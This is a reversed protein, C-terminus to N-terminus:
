IGYTNSQAPAANNSPKQPEPARLGQWGMEITHDIIAIAQAETQNALRKLQAEESTPKLPKKIETRHSRWRNWATAFEEGHPLNATPSEKKNSKEERRKEPQAKQQPKTAVNDCRNARSKAMRKASSGRLKATQGNHYDFNPIQYSGEDGTLWGVTLLAKAFGTAFTIRDILVNTVSLACGNESNTDAWMWFRLLKGVVADHDIGLETAIMDVEPKDPLAHEIKIWDGAM